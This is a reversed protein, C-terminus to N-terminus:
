KTIATSKEHRLGSQNCVELTSSEKPSLTGLTRERMSIGSALVKRVQGTEYSFTWTTWSGKFIGMRCFGEIRQEQTLLVPIGSLVLATKDPLYTMLCKVQGFNSQTQAPWNMAKKRRQLRLSSCSKPSLCSGQGFTSPVCSSTYPASRWSLIQENSDQHYVSLKASVKPNEKIWIRLEHSM